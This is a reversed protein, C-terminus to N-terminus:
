RDEGEVAIEGVDPPEINLVGSLGCIEFVRAAQAQAGRWWIMRHQETAHRHARMMMAIGSSDIFSVDSLDVVVPGVARDLAACIANGIGKANALDIEGDLRIERTPVYPEAAAASM